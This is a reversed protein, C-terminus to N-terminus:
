PVLSFPQVPNWVFRNFEESVYGASSEVQYKTSPVRALDLHRSGLGISDLVMPAKREMNKWEVNLHTYMLVKPLIYM